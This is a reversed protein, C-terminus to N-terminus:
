IILYNKTEKLQNLGNSVMIPKKTNIIKDILEFYNNDSSAIKFIPVLNFLDSQLDFPTCLVIDM